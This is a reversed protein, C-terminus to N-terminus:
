SLLTKVKSKFTEFVEPTNEYERNFFCKQLTKM